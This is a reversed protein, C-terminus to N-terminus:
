GRPVAKVLQKWGKRPGRPRTIGNAIAVQSVTWQSVGFLEAIEYTSMRPNNLLSKHILSKVSDPIKM